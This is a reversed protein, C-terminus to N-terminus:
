AGRDYYKKYNTYQSALDFYGYRSHKKLNVQTLVIGFVTSGAAQLRSVTQMVLERRTKEWQVILLCADCLRAIGLADSAVMVPPADIITLDHAASTTTVIDVLRRSRLLEAPDVSGGEAPLVRLGSAEDTRIAETWNVEGSIVSELGFPGGFRLMEKISPRRLDAEVLLVRQRGKAALMALALAVTSKGESPVASTILITRLRRNMRAVHLVTNISQFAEGYFSTPMEVAYRFAGKPVVRRASLYPIMGICSIGTVMELQTSSRFGFDLKERLLALFLGVLGSLAAAILIIATRNPYSHSLPIKARSIIRADPQQIGSQETIEKYRTLFTDFLVRNADAERQLEGSTVSAKDLQAVREQLSTVSTELSEERARAIELESALAGAIKQVESKIKERLDRMEAKINIIAPHREGYNESLEAQRRVLEADQERLHQILESALVEPASEIEDKALLYRVRTLRAEAQARESRALILETNLESLQQGSVTQGSSTTLNARERFEQLSRESKRVKDRLQDLKKSLWLSARETADYKAELQKNLYEDVLTNVIETSTRPNPSIFDIFVTLSYVDHRVRTQRQFGIITQLRHLNEEAYIDVLTSSPFLDRIIDSFDSLIVNVISRPTWEGRSEILGLRDIVREALDLSRIEDLETQIASEDPSIGSLVSDINVIETTRSNVGVVATATYLPPIQLAVFIALSTGLMFVSLIMKWRRRLLLLGTELPIGLTSEIVSRKDSQVTALNRNDTTLPENM